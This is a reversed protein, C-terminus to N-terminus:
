FEQGSYAYAPPSLGSTGFAFYYRRAARWARVFSPCRPEIKGDLEPFEFWDGVILSRESPARYGQVGFISTLVRAREMLARHLVSVLWGDLAILQGPDTVMPLNRMLKEPRRLKGTGRLFADIEAEGIRGYMMRRLENLCTTLDWDFFGPGVRDPNFLKRSRPNHLLHIYICKSMRRKIMRIAKDPLGVESATLRHGLYDVSEITPVAEQADASILWPTRAGGDLRYIGHFKDLNIAAGSRACYAEVAAAIARADDLTHAVALIDDAFRVFRGRLMELSVDLEHAAVNSLFLSLSNGQSVGVRRRSFQGAQYALRPAFSHELVGRIVAEEARSIIFNTKDFAVKLVYDHSISDFYKRFDFHVLFRAGGDIAERLCLIGDFVNRDLRFAYCGSSFRNANRRTIRRFLLSAVATDPITFIMIERTGGTPKKISGAIAPNPEYTQDLIKNWIVRALYKKHDLCYKPDFHDHVGWPLPTHPAKLEGECGTRKRYRERHKRERWRELDARRRLKEAQREIEKELEDQM